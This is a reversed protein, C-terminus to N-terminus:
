RLATINIRATGNGPKNEDPVVNLMNIEYDDIIISEYEKMNINQSLTATRVLIYASDDNRDGVDNQDVRLLRIRCDKLMMETGVGGTRSAAPLNEAFFIICGIVIGIITTSQRGHPKFIPSILPGAFRTQIGHTLM